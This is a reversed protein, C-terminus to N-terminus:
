PLELGPLALQRKGLIGFGANTEAYVLQLTFATLRNGGSSRKLPLVLAGDDDRSPKVPEGDLLVSRVEANDPLLVRLRHRLRNRLTLKIETMTPGQESMVTWANLQDISAGAPEQEPLRAARTTISPENGIFRFAGLVPSVASNIVSSPLQRVDVPQAGSVSKVELQRKGPVELALWGQQRETGLAHPWRLIFEDEDRDVERKLRLSIEYNDRIPFATEGRLRKGDDTTDYRFAGEGEASLIAYGAPIEIEFNKTGAYLIKYRLVTFLEISSDDLSALTLNEVYVKAERDSSQELRRYGVLEIRATPRLAANLTSRTETSSVRSSVASTIRPQLDPVPFEVQIQTVPTRASRFAYEISGDPGRAPVRLDVQIDVEGSERTLWVHYGNERILPLARGKQTASVVVVTEGVLPVAKWANPNGLTVHMELRLQLVGNVVSGNYRSAGLVVPSDTYSDQAEQAERLQERLAEYQELPVATTSQGSVSSSLPRPSRNLRVQNSQMIADFSRNAEADESQAFAPVSWFVLSLLFWRAM